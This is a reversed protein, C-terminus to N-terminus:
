GDLGRRVPSAMAAQLEALERRVGRLAEEARRARELGQQAERRAQGQAVLLEFAKQRWGHVMAVARGADDDAAAGDGDARGAGLAGEQMECLRTMAELRLGLLAQALRACRRGCSPSPPASRTRM